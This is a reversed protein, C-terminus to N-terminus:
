VRARLSWWGAAVGLVSLLAMLPVAALSASPDRMQGFVQDVGISITEIALMVVLATALVYGWLRGRWLWYAAAFMLPLTFALDLVHVPNTTIATGAYSAPARNAAIAPLIDALWTVGFLAASAALYIALSRVPVREALPEALRAIDLERALAVLSWTALGLMAVFLLFLSNFAAIFCFLVANYALYGLAALWLIQARWGGARAGLMAGILLPVAVVLVVAATGQANGVTVPPDHFVSPWALVLLATVGAVAALATSLVYSLHTREAVVVRPAAIVAM